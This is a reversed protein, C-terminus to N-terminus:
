YVVVTNKRSCEECSGTKSGEPINAGCLKCKYRYPKILIFDESFSLEVRQGSFLGMKEREKAPVLIKGHKDIETTYMDVRRFIFSAGVSALAGFFASEM